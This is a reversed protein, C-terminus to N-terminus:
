SGSLLPKWEKPQRQQRLRLKMFNAQYIDLAIEKAESTTLGQNIVINKAQVNFSSDGASQTQVEDKVILGM